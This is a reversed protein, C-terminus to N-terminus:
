SKRYCWPAIKVRLERATETSRKRMVVCHIEACAGVHYFLKATSRYRNVKSVDNQVPMSDELNVECNNSAYLLQLRTVKRM